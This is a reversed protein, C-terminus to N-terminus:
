DNMQIGTGMIQCDKKSFRFDAFSILNSAKGEQRNKRINNVEGAKNLDRYSNNSCDLNEKNGNPSVCLKLHNIPTSNIPADKLIVRARIPTSTKPLLYNSVMKNKVSIPAQM